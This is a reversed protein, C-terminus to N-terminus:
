LRTMCICVCKLSCAYTVKDPTRVCLLHQSCWIQPLMTCRSAEAGSVMDLVLVAEPLMSCGAHLPKCCTGHGLHIYILLGVKDEQFSAKLSAKKPVAAM